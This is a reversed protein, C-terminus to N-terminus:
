EEKISFEQLTLNTPNVLEHLNIHVYNKLNRDFYELEIIVGTFKTSNMNTLNNRGRWNVSESFKWNIKTSGSSENRININIGKIKEQNLQM